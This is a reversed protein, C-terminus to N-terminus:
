GAHIEDKALSRSLEITERLDSSTVHPNLAALRLFVKDELKTISITRHGQGMIKKYVSEQLRNAKELSAGKILIRFCLIGTDPIHGTEIDPEEQLKAYAEKVAALPARLRKITKKLGLHRLTATLPLASLPRTSPPSKLGPNPCPDNRRNFYEGYVALRHLDKRNKTFLISSPIPVGFQKHPDWSVSDARDLGAYKPKLEPILAYALGYAGDVHLWIHHEGCIDAASAIPDISGTSTTGATVVAAIINKETKKQIITEKFHAPDLKRDADVNVFVLSDEGLGLIRAAQFFFFHADQSTLICPQKGDKFGALGTQNLDFGEEEAKRHLALYVAEQNAYTGSYMFTADAQSGLEFLRCLSRCCEEELVAGGPSVQWNTVGQNYALAIEAGIRAATEPFFNFMSLFAPHDYNMLHPVLREQILRKLTDLSIGEDQFDVLPMIDRIVTDPSAGSYIRASKKM